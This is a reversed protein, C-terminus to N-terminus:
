PPGAARRPACSRRSSGRRSLRSGATRPASSCSASRAPGHRTSCRAPTSPSGPSPGRARSCGAAAARPSCARRVRRGRHRAQRGPPAPAPPLASANGHRQLQPPARVDRDSRRAPGPPLRPAGRPWDEPPRPHARTRRRRARARPELDGASPLAQRCRARSCRRRPRHLPRRRSRGSARPGHEARRRQSRPRRALAGRGGLPRVSPLPDPDAELGESFPAPWALRPRRRGPGRGGHFGRFDDHLLSVRDRVTALRRGQAGGETTTRAGWSASPSSSGGSRSTPGPACAGDDDTRALDELFGRVEEPTVGARFTAHEIERRRFRRILSASHRSVRTFPRGQVFLEEGLLVLALEPEAALLTALQSSIRQVAEGARPHSGGYLGVATAGGALDGLLRDVQLEWETRASVRRGGKRRAPRAARRAGGRRRRRRPQPRPRGRAPPGRAGELRAIAAAAERRPETLPFPYRWQKLALIERLIGLAAPDRLRGLARILDLSTPRACAAASASRCAACSLASWTPTASGPLWTSRWGGGTTTRASDITQLLLKFWDPDQLEVLAKLIELLVKPPAGEIRSKLLASVSRGVSAVCSSCPTAFSSGARTTSCRISTDSPAAGRGLWSRWSANGSPSATRRRRARGPGGSPRNRRPRGAGGHPRSPPAERADQVGTGHGARREGQDGRSGAANRIAGLLPALRVATEIDGVDLAAAFEEALRVAARQAIPSDPWLM